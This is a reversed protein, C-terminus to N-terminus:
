ISKSQIYINSTDALTSDEFSVSSAFLHISFLIFDEVSASDGTKREVIFGLENPSNDQWTVIVRNAITPHLNAKLNSPASVSALITTVSALNSYNSELYINFAKVRYTYTTTDALSLDNFSTTNSPITDFPSTYTNASVANGIKREVIFGM